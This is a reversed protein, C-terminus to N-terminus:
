LRNRQTGRQQDQIAESLAVNVTDDLFKSVGTRLQARLAELTPTREAAVFFDWSCAAAAANFDDPLLPNANRSGVLALTSSLPSVITAITEIEAFMLPFSNHAPDFAVAICDPLILPERATAIRWDFGALKEVHIPPALDTNLSRRQAGAAVDPVKSIMDSMAAMLPTLIEGFMVSFDTKMKGFVAAEFDAQKIGAMQFIQGFQQWAKALERQVMANPADQHLGVLEKASDGTLVVDAIGGIVASGASAMAKRFHDNRVILHTLFEASLRADAMDGDDLSRLSALIETLSQEYNTIKDDLTPDGGDVSLESYFNREAGIGDTAAVFTGRDYTYAVVQVKSGKGERGFGRLLSQPIFHQKRGSM